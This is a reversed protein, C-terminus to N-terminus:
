QNVENFIQNAKIIAKNTAELRTTVEEACFEIGVQSQIRIDSDFGEKYKDVSIYIGVSDFWDIIIANQCTESLALFNVKIIKEGAMNYVPFMKNFRLVDESLYWKWFEQKAKDTLKM